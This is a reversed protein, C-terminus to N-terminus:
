IIVQPLALSMNDIGVKEDGKREGEGEGTPIHADCSNIFCNPKKYCIPLEM